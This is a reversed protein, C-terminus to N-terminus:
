LRVYERDADTPTFKEKVFTFDAFWNWSEMAWLLDFQHYAYRSIYGPQNAVGLM